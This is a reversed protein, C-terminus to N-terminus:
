APRRDGGCRCPSARPPRQTLISLGDGRRFGPDLEGERQAPAEATTHVRKKLASGSRQKLAQQRAPLRGGHGAVSVSGCTQAKRRAMGRRPAFREKVHGRADGRRPSSAHGLPPVREGSEGKRSFVRAKARPSPYAAVRLRTAADFCVGRHRLFVGVRGAQAPRGGRLPLYSLPIRRPLSHGHGATVSMPAQRAARIRLFIIRSKRTAARPFSYVSSRRSPGM